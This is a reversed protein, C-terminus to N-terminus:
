LSKMDTGYIGPNHDGTLVKHLELSIAGAVSPSLTLVLPCGDTIPLELVARGQPDVRVVVPSLVPVEVGAGGTGAPVDRGSCALAVCRLISRALFVADGAALTMVAAGTAHDFLEVHGLTSTRADLNEAKM